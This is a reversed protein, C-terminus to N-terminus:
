GLMILFSVTQIVVFNINIPFFSADFYGFSGCAVKIDPLSRLIKRILKRRFGHRELCQQKECTALARKGTKNVSGMTGFAEKLLILRDIASISLFVFQFETAKTSLMSYLAIILLVTNTGVVVPLMFANLENFTLTLLQIKAYSRFIDQIDKSSASNGNSRLKNAYSSINYM